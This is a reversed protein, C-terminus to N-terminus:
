DIMKYVYNVHDVSVTDEARRYTMYSRVSCCGKEIGRSISMCSIYLEPIHMPVVYMRIYTYLLISTCPQKYIYVCLLVYIAMMYVCFLVYIAMMYICMVTCLHGDYICVYCYM